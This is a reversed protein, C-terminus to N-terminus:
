FGSPEQRAWQAVRRMFGDCAELQSIALFEDPRHAQEISGPGCIVADVGAEAYQGAETAYPVAVAEGSAGFRRALSVARNSPHTHFAPSGALRTTAWTVGAGDPGLVQRLRGAIRREAMACLEKPDDTDRFRLDWMVTASEAVINRAVGGQIVGVNITPGPLVLPHVYPLAQWEQGLATLESVMEAAAVVASAGQHPTSSHAAKGRFRTELAIFGKHAVVPRMLTPEGIIAAAPRPLERGFRKLLSPVGLCGVEEDHSLAIHVPTRLRQSLFLPVAALVCAAFGKMDCTGRGHLVGDAETLEFPATRWHQGDVPVVDTHAHLCLGPTDVPGLTAFLNAKTGDENPITHVKVGHTALHDSVWDILDLNSTDSVTEFAVLARLIERSTLLSEPM